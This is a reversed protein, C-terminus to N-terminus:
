WMAVLALWRAIAVIAFPSNSCILTDVSAGPRPWTRISICKAANCSIWFRYVALVLNGVDVFRTAIGQVRQRYRTQYSSVATSWMTINDSLCYTFTV